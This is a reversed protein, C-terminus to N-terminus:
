STRMNDYATALVVIDAPLASGDALQIADETFGEIEGSSQLVKIKGDIILRSCGIDIYYGGRRTM